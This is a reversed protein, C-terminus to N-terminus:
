NKLAVTYGGIMTSNAAGPPVMPYVEEQKDIPVNILCPGPSAIADNLLEGSIPSYRFDVSKMGFWELGQKPDGM